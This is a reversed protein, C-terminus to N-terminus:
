LSANVAISIIIVAVAGIVFGVRSFKFEKKDNDDPHFGFVGVIMKFVTSILAFIVGVLLGIIIAFVVTLIITVM